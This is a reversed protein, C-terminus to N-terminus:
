GDVLWLLHQLHLVLAASPLPLVLLPWWAAASTGAKERSSSCANSPSSTSVQRCTHTTLGAVQQARGCVM